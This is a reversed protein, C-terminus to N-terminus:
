RTTESAIFGKAGVILNVTFLFLRRRNRAGDEDVARACVYVCVRLIMRVRGGERM